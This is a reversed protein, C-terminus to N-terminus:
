SAHKGQQQQQARAMARLGQLLAKSVAAKQQAAVEGWPPPQLPEEGALREGVYGVSMRRLMQLEWPAWATGTCRAWAQLETYALPVAGAAGAGAPGVDLWADVLYRLPSRVPPLPM